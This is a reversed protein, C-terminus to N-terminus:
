DTSGEHARVPRPMPVASALGLVIAVGIILLSGGLDPKAIKLFITGLAIAMPDPHLDM